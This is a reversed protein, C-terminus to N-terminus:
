LGVEHQTIGKGVIAFGAVNEVGGAPVVGACAPAAKGFVMVARADKVETNVGCATPSKRNWTASRRATTRVLSPDPGPTVM